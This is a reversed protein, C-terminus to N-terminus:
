KPGTAPPPSAQNVKELKAKEEAKKRDIFDHVMQKTYGRPAKEMEASSTQKKPQHGHKTLIENWLKEANEKGPYSADGTHSSKAPPMTSLPIVNMILAQRSTEKAQEHPVPTKQSKASNKRVKDEGTKETQTAVKSGDRKM